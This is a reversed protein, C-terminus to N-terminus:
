HLNSRSRLGCAVQSGAGGAGGPGTPRRSVDRAADPQLAAPPLPLVHRWGAQGGDALLGVRCGPFSVWGPPAGAQSERWPGPVEALARGEDEWGMRTLPRCRRRCATPGRAEPLTPQTRPGGPPELSQHSSVAPSPCPPPPPKLSSGRHKPKGDELANYPGLTGRHSGKRPTVKPM